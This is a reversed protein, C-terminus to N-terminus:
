VSWIDNLRQPSVNGRVAGILVTGAEETVGTEDM